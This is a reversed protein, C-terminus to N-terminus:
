KCFPDGEPTKASGKRVKLRPLDGTEELLKFEKATEHFESALNRWMETSTESLNQARQAISVAEKVDRRNDPNVEGVRVAVCLFQLIQPTLSSLDVKTVPCRGNILPTEEAFPSTDFVQDPKQGVPYTQVCVGDPYFYEDGPDLGEEMLKLVQKTAERDFDGDPNFVLICTGNFRRYMENGFEDRPSSPNYKDVLEADHYRGAGRMYELASMPVSTSQDDVVGPDERPAEEPDAWKSSRWNRALTEAPIKNFGIEQISEISASKLMPVTMAGANHLKELVDQPEVGIDTAASEIMSRFQPEIGALSPTNAM